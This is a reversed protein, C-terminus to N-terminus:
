VTYNGEAFAGNKRLFWIQAATGNAPYIQIKQEIRGIVGGTVDIAKNSCSSLFSIGSGVKKAIWKQSCTGNSDYIQIPTGDDSRGDTVDLVRGSAINKITYLGDAGRALNFMQNNGFTIEYTHTKTRNASSGYQLDIAKKASTELVYDGNEIVAASLDGFIWRESNAGTADNIQIKAGETNANGGVVNITKYSCESRLSYGNGNNIILWQQACTGNDQYLQLNTGNDIRGDVVDLMLGSALHKIGYYDGRRILQYKRNAETANSSIVFRSGQTNGEPVLYKGSDAQITFTDSGFNVSTFSTKHTDGFWDTYYLWFNRNGYASCGDGYGYGANLAAGNPQYPTYQYLASTARNAINVTTGGCGSNPNFQVYNNGVPYYRSGNDLIYRFFYATNRVQNKFGYYKTDCAATDPCGYGTASRYQLSNPWEDTVLGQEKQLVVILVKPNIRYDQAARYIIHAASEGNFNEDAMCVYHGNVIHHTVPLSESFYDRQVNSAHNGDPRQDCKAKSKLFSQIASESLSNYDSVVADSIIDGANFNRTDAASTDETDRTAFFSIAATVAFVIMILLVYRRDFRRAM